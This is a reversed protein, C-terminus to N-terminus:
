IKYLLTAYHTIHTVRPVATVRTVMRIMQVFLIVYIGDTLVNKPNQHSFKKFFNIELRLFTQM